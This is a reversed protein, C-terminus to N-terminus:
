AMGEEGDWHSGFLVLSGPVPYMSASICPLTLRPRGQGGKRTGYTTGGGVGGFWATLRKKILSVSIPDLSTQEARSLGRHNGNTRARREKDPPGWTVREGQFRVFSAGWELRLEPFQSHPLLSMLLASLLLGWSPM